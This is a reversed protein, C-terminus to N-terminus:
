NDKSVIKLMFEVLFRAAEEWDAPDESFERVIIM